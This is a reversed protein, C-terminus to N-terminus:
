DQSTFSLLVVLNGVMASVPFALWPSGWQVRLGADVPEGDALGRAASAASEPGLLMGVGVMVVAALAAGVLLSLVTAVEDRDLLWTFVVGLLLGLAAAVAVYTGTSRFEDDPGFYARHQYVVGTPAPQWWWFWLLGGVVGAVAFTGLM